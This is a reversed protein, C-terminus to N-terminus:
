ARGRSEEGADEHAKPDHAYDFPQSRDFLARLESESLRNVADADPLEHQPVEVVRWGWSSNSTCHFIVSRVGPHATERALDARWSEGNAEIKQTM